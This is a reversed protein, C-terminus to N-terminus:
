YTFCKIQHFSYSLSIGLFYYWDKDYRNGFNFYDPSTFVEDDGYVPHSDVFKPVMQSRDEVKDIYDIFTARFGMEMSLFLRDKLKYKVGLGFPIVPTSVTYDGASPDLWYSQGEGSFISYGLGFFGYPSYRTRSRHSLYDLFHFEMVAAAEFVTGAFYADRSVALPDIRSISDAGNLRAISLGARLSWANDFNRRGFLTGQIGIQSPDVHRIIDGTYTAGGLGFGVEYQQAEVQHVTAVMLFLLTLRCLVYFRAKKM